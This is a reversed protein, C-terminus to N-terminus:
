LVLATVFNFHTLCEEALSGDKLTLYRKGMERFDIHEIMEFGYDSLLKKLEVQTVIFQYPEAANMSDIKDALYDFCVINSSHTSIFNLTNKIADEKLYYTVGEWIYLTRTGNQFGARLLVEELSDTEFNLSVFTANGPIKIKNRELIDIKRNQTTQMDVEYIKTAGLVDHFRYARTDYGAGLIVIQSINESLYKKFIFDFYATRSISYGYKPSTILKQISWKRSAGDKLPKIGEETLFYEALVDSGRIEEREDKAALARCFALVTASESPKNEVSRKSVDLPLGTIGIINGFPDIVKAIRINLRDTIPMYEKAGMSILKQYSSDIDEVDWFIETQESDLRIPNNTKSISLTCDGVKFVIVFPTDLIPQMNLISAYWKKAEVLESAHYTIRKLSKFV